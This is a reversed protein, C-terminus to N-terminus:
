DERQCFSAEIGVVNRRNPRACISFVQNRSCIL